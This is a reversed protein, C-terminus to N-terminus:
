PTTTGPNQSLNDVPNALPDTFANGIAAIPPATNTTPGQIKPQAVPITVRISRTLTGAQKKADYARVSYRYTKGAAVKHDTFTTRSTKALQKGDRLVVYHAPKAGKPAGWQLTVGSSTLGSAKLSRPAALRKSATVRGLLGTGRGRGRRLSKRLATM